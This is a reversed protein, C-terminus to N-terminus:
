VCSEKRPFLIKRMSIIFNLVRAVTRKSKNRNQHYALFRACVLVTAPTRASFIEDPKHFIYQVHCINLAAAM